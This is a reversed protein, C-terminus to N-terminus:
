IKSCFIVVVINLITLGHHLRLFTDKLVWCLLRKIVSCNSFTQMLVCFCVNCLDCKCKKTHLEHLFVNMLCSCTRVSHIKKQRKTGIMGMMLRCLNQNIIPVLRCFFIGGKLVRAHEISLNNHLSCAPFFHFHLQHLM